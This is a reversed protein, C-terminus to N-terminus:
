KKYLSSLYMKLRELTADDLARVGELPNKIHLAAYKESAMTHYAKLEYREANTYKKAIEFYRDIDEEKDNIGPVIVTRLWIKIKNEMLFDLSRLVTDMVNGKAYKEYDEARYFKLDAIILDCLTYLEKIKDNFLSLATDLAIHIGKEKLMKACEILFEAQLIPEGGTFTVGGGGAFYNKYRLIKKVLEDATVTFGGGCTWTDPNHCYACRLNCGSMFVAFRIGTGDLTAFSDYSHVYGVASM